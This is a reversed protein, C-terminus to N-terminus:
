LGDAWDTDASPRIAALWHPPGPLDDQSHSLVKYISKRSPSIHNMNRETTPILNVETPYPKHYHKNIPQNWFKSIPSLYATSEISSYTFLKDKFM